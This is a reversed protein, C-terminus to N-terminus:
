HTLVDNHNYSHHKIMGEILVRSLSQNDFLKFISPLKKYEIASPKRYKMMYHLETFTEELPFMSPNTTWEKGIALNFPKTQISRKIIIKM